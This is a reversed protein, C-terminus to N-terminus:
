CDPDLIVEVVGHNASFNSMLGEHQVPRIVSSQLMRLDPPNIIPEIDLFNNQTM